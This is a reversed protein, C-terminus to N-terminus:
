IAVAAAGFLTAVKAQDTTGLDAVILKDKARSCCVYFLNRSRKIRGESTDTGTLLKGFSYQNWNAGADDLIVLVNQFEDGKVGHKTSYPLNNQLVARYNSIEAYPIALLKAMFVQHEAEPTGVEAPAVKGSIGVKLDDLLPMLDAAQVHKLVAEVTAGSDVLAILGDLAAKVREKESQAAIPKSRDSILSITRGVKGQRWSGIIPEIRNVFFAAIPDEGSQFRDRAFGGRENYATWLAEYGAKRAILRHTLFLVKLEGELAWGFKGQAKQVALSILDAAPDIGALSVYVAAGPLNNGASEQKIDTRVNNLLDIVAKSCRYNEEKKIQVLMAQHDPSLEGVGDTYISQMKDGFFGLLPPADTKILCDLLISIVSPDTDQYEDVFIFPFRAAVVKSLMPHDRFMVHAVGLLDDHFIRGEMYNAGRDSYSIGSVEKLAQELEAEDQKRRSKASLSANFSLLAPKLEKQFPKIAAWLFDHITSVVFLPDHETREIIENKAVNTFTICAVRQSSTVAKTRDPGRIYDLARILSSTKGSGAGADILFSRREKLCELIKVDAETMM